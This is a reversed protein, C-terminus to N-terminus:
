KPDECDIIRRAGNMYNEVLCTVGEIEVRDYREDESQDLDVTLCIAVFFAVVGAVVAILPLVPRM